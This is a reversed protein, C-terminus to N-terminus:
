AVALWRLMRLANTAMPPMTTAIRHRRQNLRTARGGGLTRLPVPRGPTPAARAFSVSRRFSTRRDPLPVPFSTTVGAADEVRIVPM